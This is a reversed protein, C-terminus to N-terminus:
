TADRAAIMADAMDYCHRAVDAKSTAVKFKPSSLYAHMATLAITDRDREM